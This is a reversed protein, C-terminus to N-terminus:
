DGLISKQKTVKDDSYDIESDKPRNVALYMFGALYESAGCARLAEEFLKHAIKSPIDLSLLYDHLGAAPAYCVDGVSAPGMFEKALPPISALDSLFGM